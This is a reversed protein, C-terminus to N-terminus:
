WKEDYLPLFHVKKIIKSKLVEYMLVASLMVKPGRRGRLNMKKKDNYMYVCMNSHVYHAYM